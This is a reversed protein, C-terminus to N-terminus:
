RDISFVQFDAPWAWFEFDFKLLDQKSEYNYAQRAKTLTKIFKAYMPNNSRSYSRVALSAIIIAGAGAVIKSITFANEALSYSRRYM